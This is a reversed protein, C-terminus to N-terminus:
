PWLWLDAATELCTANNPEKFTQYFTELDMRTADELRRYSQAEGVGTPSIDELTVQREPSWLWLVAGEQRPCSQIQKDRARGESVYMALIGRQPYFLMLFFPLSGERSTRFTKLWVETPRGYTTLLQPLTYHWSNGPDAVMMEIIGSRVIFDQDLISGRRLQEPVKFKV